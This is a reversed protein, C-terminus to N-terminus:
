GRWFSLLLPAPGLVLYLAVTWLGTFAELKGSSTNSSLVKLRIVYATAFLATMLILVILATQSVSATWLALAATTLLAALWVLSARPLGWLASYTEVGILEESPKRMKRGIEIAIGNFFSVLLFAMLGSPPYKASPLWDCATVYADILPMILMHSSMYIIPHRRLWKGVFFEKTMLALYLWTGFLLWLLAPALAISLVLQLGASVYGVMRLEDLSVLGRPVPRYPRFRCDEENDKYEDTIRLQLFFCFASIFAVLYSALSPLHEAGRLVASLSVGSCSFALILIGHLVVPFREAQYIWLRHGLDSLQYLVTQMPSDTLSSWVLM